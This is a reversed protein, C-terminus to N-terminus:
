KVSLWKKRKKDYKKIVKAPVGVAVSYDPVDKKVFSNAGVVANKGITVGSTITAKTGIWAGSKIRVAKKKTIGQKKIPMDVRKYSHDHDTIYVLPAILVHDDIKISHAANIKSGYGVTVFDGISLEPASHMNDFSEDPVQLFVQSGLFVRKGLSIYEPNKIEVGSSFGVRWGIKKFRFFTLFYFYRLLYYATRM